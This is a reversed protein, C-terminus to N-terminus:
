GRSCRCCRRKAREPNASSIGTITLEYTETDLSPNTIVITDGVSLGNYLALEESIVCEYAATGEDFMTGGDLISATGDAFETMATDSSYGIVTFDGASFTGSFQMGSMGPFGPFSQQGEASGGDEAGDGNGATEEGGDEDSVPSLADSGNFYATVTYYFDSVSSAAAYKKYEDVTLSSASGMIESFQSRDFGGFGGFMDGGSSGIRGMQGARDYSIAATIGIGELASAKASAAAQRISLGLCASVAIVLAIIGILISRGKSRSISRFANKIIYM